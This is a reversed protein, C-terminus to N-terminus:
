YLDTLSCKTVVVVITHTCNILIQYKVTKGVSEGELVCKHRLRKNTLQQFAFLINRVQWPALRSKLICVHVKMTNVLKLITTHLYM